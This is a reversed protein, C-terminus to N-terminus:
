SEAMDLLALFCDWDDAPLGARHSPAVFLLGTLLGSVRLCEETDVLAAPLTVEASESVLPGVYPHSGRCLRLEWCSANRFGSHALLRLIETPTSASFFRDGSGFGLTWFCNFSISSGGRLFSCLDCDSRLLQLCELVLESKESRLELSDLVLVSTSLNKLSIPISLDTNSGM